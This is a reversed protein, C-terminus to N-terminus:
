REFLRGHNGTLPQLAMAARLGSGGSKGREIGNGLSVATTKATSYMQVFTEFETQSLGCYKAVDMPSYKRAQDMYQEFGHTWQQIFENDLLDRRELEAAVAMALVVDTGPKIALHLDSLQAVKTRKPDIVLLKAGNKERAKNIVKILHLNSVTVNNGWVVILDAHEAQEPPMGPASGYLSTYARGRVAGCLPGRNLQTAGLKHFFRYDMSGAALEGHPGAYNLPMVSQPGFERIAKSFGEYVLDLAKDWSVERYRGDGRKNTRQLPQTLRKDGHVFEPYYRAVKNCIKGDTYPNAMSGRVAVVRNQEVTVNLSCCDPCDLPCVSPHSNSNNSLKQM